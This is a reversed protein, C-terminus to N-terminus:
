NADNVTYNKLVWHGPGGTPDYYDIVDAEAPSSAEYRADTQESLDSERTGGVATTANKSSDKVSRGTGLDGQVAGTAPDVYFAGKSVNGLRDASIRIGQQLSGKIYVRMFVFATAVLGLVISYELVSQARKRSL